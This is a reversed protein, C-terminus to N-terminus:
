DTTPAVTPRVFKCITQCQITPDEAGEEASESTEAFSTSEADVRPGGAQTTNISTEVRTSYKLFSPSNLTKMVCYM